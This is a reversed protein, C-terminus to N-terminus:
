NSSPMYEFLSYVGKQAVRSSASSKMKKPTPAPKRFFLGCPICPQSHLQYYILSLQPSFFLPPSSFSFFFGSLKLSYENLQPFPSESALCSSHFLEWILKSHVEQEDENDNIKWKRRKSSLTGSTQRTISLLLWTYTKNIEPKNM